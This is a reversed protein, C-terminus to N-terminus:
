QIELLPDGYRRAHGVRQMENARVARCGVPNRGRAEGLGGLATLAM